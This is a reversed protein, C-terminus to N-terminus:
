ELNNLNIEDIRIKLGEQQAIAPIHKITMRTTMEGHQDFFVKDAHAEDLLEKIKFVSGGVLIVRDEILVENKSVPNELQERLWELQEEDRSDIFFIRRNLDEIKLPNVTAGAKHLIKGCPLVADKSAVYTPDWYFTRDENAKTIGSVPTPNEISERATKEMKKREVEMDVAALKRKMMAVFGEEEVGFTNGIKGLDSAFAQPIFAALM